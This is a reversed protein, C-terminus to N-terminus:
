EIHKGLVKDLEEIFILEQDKDGTGGCFRILMKVKDNNKECTIIFDSGEFALERPTSKTETSSIGLKSSATSIAAPVKEIDVQYYVVRANSKHYAEKISTCSSFLVPSFTLFYFIFAKKLFIKM